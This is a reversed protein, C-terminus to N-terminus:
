GNREREREFGQVRNGERQRQNARTKIVDKSIQRERLEHEHNQALQWSREDVRSALGLRSLFHLRDIEQEFGTARVASNSSTMHLSAMEM